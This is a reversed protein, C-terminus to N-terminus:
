LGMRYKIDYNIIFDLEDATFGYHDALMQDIEDVIPKCAGYDFTEIRLGSKVMTRSTMKLESLYRTGLVALKWKLTSSVGEPHFPFALLDRSNLNRCDSLVNWFWFFTSSSLAAVVAQVSEESQLRM